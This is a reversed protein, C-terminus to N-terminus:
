KSNLNYSANCYQTFIINYIVMINHPAISIYDESVFLLIYEGLQYTMKTFLFVNLAVTLWLCKLREAMIETM